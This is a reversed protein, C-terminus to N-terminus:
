QYLEDSTFIATPPLGQKQWIRKALNIANQRRPERRRCESILADWLRTLDSRYRSVLDEVLSEDAPLELHTAATHSALILAEALATGTVDITQPPNHARLRVTDFFITEAHLPGPIEYRKLDPRYHHMLYHGPFRPIGDVFVQAAIDEISIRQRNSAGPKDAEERSSLDTLPPVSGFIHAFEREIADGPPIEGSEPNVFIGLDCLVAENPLPVGSAVATQISRRLDAPLETRGCCLHWLHQGLSTHLFLYAGWAAEDIREPNIASGILRNSKLLEAVPPSSALWAHLLGCPHGDLQEVPVSCQGSALHLRIDGAALTRVTFRVAQTNGDLQAAEALRYRESLVGWLIPIGPALHWNEPLVLSLQETTMGALHLADWVWTPTNRPLEFRRSPWSQRLALTRLAREQKMLPRTDSLIAVTCTFANGAPLAPPTEALHETAVKPEHHALCVWGALMPRPAVLALPPAATAPSPQCAVWLQAQSVDWPPMASCTGFHKASEGLLISFLARSAEQDRPWGLQKLRTALHHLRIASGEPLPAETDGHALWTLPGVAVDALAYRMAIELREPQLSQPLRKQQLLFLLRWLSMWAKSLPAQEVWEDAATQGGALRAGETLGPALDALTHSCLNAYYYTDYAGSALATTVTLIKLQEMLWDLAQQFDDPTIQSSAPLVLTDVRTPQAAATTWISVDQASWISFHGIGLAKALIAGKRCAEEDAKDPLLIMSGAFLSDRNIWLVLDPSLYGEETLIEPCSELRQFPLRQSSLRPKIWATLQERFKKLLVSDMQSWRRIGDPSLFPATVM